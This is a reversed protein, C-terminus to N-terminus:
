KQKGEALQNVLVKLEHLQAKLAANEAKLEQREMEAKLKGSEVKENLGQIAALAVGSEDVVSIHKDDGGNLGFADQFDQAMPGVHRVDAGNAKYNWETIPLAAVKQLVQAPSVSKFNEKANRDSALLVGNATVTGTVILNGNTAITMAILRNALGTGLWMFDVKNAGNAIAFDQSYNTVNSDARLHLRASTAGQIIELGNAGPSKIHVGEWGSPYGISAMPNTTGIGVGGLARILFQNLASSTFPTGLSRDAWVFTGEHAANALYGMATSSNGSAITQNGMATSTNGSALSGLGFATANFFSATSLHGFATSYGGSATTDGGMATSYDGSAVANNGMATANTGNAVTQNGMATSYTGSAVTQIGMATSYTGSAVTLLGMATSVAGSAKTAAGMATAYDNTAKTDYGMAVSSDGSALSNTGMATSNVGSAVTNKGMATSFDGSATGSGMSTALGGSAISSGLATATNGSAKAFAGMATSYVGSAVNGIGGLVSAYNAGVTNRQIGGIGGGGIFAGVFGNSIVNASSGGIINGNLYVTGNLVTDGNVALAASGPNNTNIGVGGSARVLFQNNATSAYDADTSDGWVFTGQHNAKARRGAALGFSAAVSNQLGGLVSAYNVSAGVSNQLGGSIVTYLSGSNINNQGGGGIVNQNAADYVINKLGGGIVSYNVNQGIYNQGGGGIVDQNANIGNTNSLGGGIVSYNGQMVNFIGAGIVSANVGLFIGNGYGGLVTSYNANVQQPNSSNGGGGIFSGLQGVGVSNGSYGGIGNPSTGNPELRLARQGNVKFELPQNNTTGLFAGTGVANGNTQWFGASSIGGLTAANVNTVNAGDGSYDGNFHGNFQNAPSSFTRATTLTTTLQSDVLQGFIASASITGSLNSATTAYIAYPVPTLQQRPALTTFTAAGNTRVALELWNSAGTFVNGFNITVTFLGNSVGTTANTVPGAIATGTTNTAFLTFRVDYMGTTNTGNNNLRGQYTFATGQASATSLPSNLTSLFLLALTFHLFSKM